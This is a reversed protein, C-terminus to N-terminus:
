ATTVVAKDLVLVTHEAQSVFGRASERLIPYNQLVGNKALNNFILTMDKKFHKEAARKSFPLSKFEKEAFKILERENAMRAGTTKILRYILSSKGEVVKGAGTCAFPEIAVAYGEELKQNSTNSYNPITIGAHLEYQELLHGSLNTIPQFGYKKIRAEIIKGIEGITVGPKIIKIADSLAEESAKILLIYKDTSVEKTKATDAIYGDIHAGVDLKVIDGQKLKREDNRSATDHAATENISLNAPFAIGAGANKIIEEAKEVIDLIFADEEIMKIGEDLAKKAIKGAEIYKQIAEKEM